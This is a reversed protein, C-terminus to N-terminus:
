AVPAWLTGALNNMVAADVQDVYGRYYTTHTTAGSSLHLPDPDCVIDNDACAAWVDGQQTRPTLLEYNAAWSPKVPLANLLTAIGTQDAPSVHEYGVEQHIKFLHILDGPAAAPNALLVFTPLGGSAPPPTAAVRDMIWAGQSYGVGIISANPCKSALGAILSRTIAVGTQAGDVYSHIEADNSLAWGALSVPDLGSPLPLTPVGYAVYNVALVSFTAGVDAISAAGTGGVGNVGAQWYRRVFEGVPIGLGGNSTIPEGSGRAGIIIVSACKVAPLSRVTKRAVDKLTVVSSKAEVTTAGSSISGAIVLGALAAMAAARIRM